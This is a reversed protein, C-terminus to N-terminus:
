KGGFLQAAEDRLWIHDAFPYEKEAAVRKRAEDLWRKAEAPRGLAHLNMARLYAGCAHQDKRDDLARAFEAEAEAHRGARFLAAALTKRSLSPNMQLSNRALSSILRICRSSM